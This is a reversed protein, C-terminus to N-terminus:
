LSHCISLYTSLILGYIRAVPRYQDNFQGSDSSTITLVGIPKEVRDSNPVLKASTIPISIFSRYYLLDREPDDIFLNDQIHDGNPLQSPDSTILVDERSFAIGAHGKGPKWTRNLPKLRQKDYERWKVQLLDLEKAYLYLTFSYIADPKTFGLTQNRSEILPKMIQEIDDALTRETPMLLFGRLFVLSAKVAIGQSLVTKNQRDLRDQQDILAALSEVTNVDVINAIKRLGNVGAISTVAFMAHLGIIFAWVFGSLGLNAAALLSETIPFAVSAMFTTIFVFLSNERALASQITRVNRVIAQLDGKQMESVQRDAM